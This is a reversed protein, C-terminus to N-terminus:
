LSPAVPRTDATDKPAPTLTTDLPANAPPLPNDTVAPATTETETKTSETESNCASAVSLLCISLLLLLRPRRSPTSMNM